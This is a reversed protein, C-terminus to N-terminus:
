MEAVKSLIDKEIQSFDLNRRKFTLEAVEIVDQMRNAKWNGPSGFTFNPIYNKQYGAGFVNCCVGVVTGSNFMTMIGAKSHDGMILGSFQLGTHVFHEEKYSWQKIESYNNKLNSTITGAGINCWEALVTHGMFGEHSKNSYGFMVTDMVEGGAKCFPGLTTNGYIRAGMRVVSNDCLAIPGRLTAGEEITVNNGIYVPGTTTNITACSIKADGSIYLENGILTNNIDPLSSKIVKLLNIDNVIERANHTFIDWGHVLKTYKAEHTITKLPFQEATGFTQMQEFSLRAAIITEDDTLAEGQALQSIREFLTYDPLVSGNILLNDKGALTPYKTSLYTDCLWSIPLESIIRWKESITLIGIRIEAVPRFFTLPRLSLASADDFLIIRTM